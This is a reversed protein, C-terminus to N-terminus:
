NDLIGMLMNINRDNRKTIYNYANRSLDEALQKDKLIKIVSEAFGEATDAVLFSKGAEDLMGRAGVSTSVIPKSHGLAEVTKISIGTGYLMPIVVVDAKKYIQEPDCVMGLRTCDSQDEFCNCIKGVLIFKSTPIVSRILPFVKELFFLVAQSNVPNNSGVFLINYRDPKVPDPKKVSQLHGVTEIKKDTLTSFFRRDADSIAFIVDARNLAIAEQEPTTYFWNPKLNNNEMEKHRNSFVDHADLIKLVGDDFCDLSKSLFANVAIVANFKHNNLLKYLYDNLSFDYWDDINFHPTQDLFLRLKRTLSIYPMKFDVFYLKKGWYSQMLKRNYDPEMNIYLFHVDFDRMILNSLMNFIRVRNGASHPHTPTPSIALLKKNM